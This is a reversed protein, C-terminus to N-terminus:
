RNIYIFVSRWESNVSTAANLKKKLKLFNCKIYKTKSLCDNAKVLCINGGLLCEIIAYIKYLIILPYPQIYFINPKTTSVNFHIIWNIYIM